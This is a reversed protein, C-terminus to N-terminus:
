SPNNPKLYNHKGGVTDTDSEFEKSARVLENEFLPRFLRGGAPMEANQYKPIQTNQYISLSCLYLAYISLM